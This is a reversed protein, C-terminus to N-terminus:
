LAFSVPGRNRRFLPRRRARPKSQARQSIVTEEVSHRYQLLPILKTGKRVM